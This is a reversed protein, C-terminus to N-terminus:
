RSQPQDADYGEEVSPLIDVNELKAKRLQGIIGASYKLYESLILGDRLGERLQQMKDYPIKEDAYVAVDLDDELGKRLEEMQLWDYKPDAYYEVPLGKELGLRIQRMQIAHLKSDAYKNVDLGEKLGANIEDIQNDSFGAKRLEDQMVM